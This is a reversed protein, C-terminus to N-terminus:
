PVSAPCPIGITSAIRKLDADDTAQAFLELSYTQGCRAALSDDGGFTQGPISVDFGSTPNIADNRYESIVVGNTMVRTTIVPTIEDHSIEALFSLKCVDVAEIRCSGEIRGPLVTAL